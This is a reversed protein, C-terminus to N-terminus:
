DERSNATEVNREGNALARCKRIEPM